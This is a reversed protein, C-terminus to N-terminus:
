VALILTKMLNELPKWQPFPTATHQDGGLIHKFDILFEKKTCLTVPM